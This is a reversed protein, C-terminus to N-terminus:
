RHQIVVSAVSGKGFHSRFGSEGVFTAPRRASSPEVVVFIAPKIEHHGVVDIPRRLIIEPAAFASGSISGIAMWSVVFALVRLEIVVIVVAGEAVHAIGGTNALGFSLAHADDERVEVIISPGVDGNRIVGPGVEKEDVLMVARKFVNRQDGSHSCTFISAVFGTHTDISRIDIAVSP